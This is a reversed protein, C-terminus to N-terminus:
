EYCKFNLILPNRSMRNKRLYKSIGPLSFLFKAISDRLIMKIYFLDNMSSIRKEEARVAKPNNASFSGISSDFVSITCPLYDFKIGEKWCTHFFNYDAAFKYTIDYENKKMLNNNIFSSQHCFPTRYAMMSLESPILEYEGWDCIHKVNGYIVGTGKYNRNRFVKSIVDNDYFTDGSNMFNIWEGTSLRIAKNMADYIGKDPESVIIDIRNKYKYIVDLTGDTSCGDIIIFEINSYTQDLVSKITSEITSEANRCVTVITIKYNDMFM